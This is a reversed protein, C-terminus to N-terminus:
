KIYQYILINNKLYTNQVLQVVLFSRTHFFIKKAFTFFSSVM